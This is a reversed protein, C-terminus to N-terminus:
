VVTCATCSRVAGLLTETPAPKKSVCVCVYSPLELQLLEEVVVLQILGILTM